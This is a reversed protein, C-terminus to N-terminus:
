ILAKWHGAACRPLGGRPIREKKRWAKHAIAARVQLTGQACAHGQDAAKRYWRM